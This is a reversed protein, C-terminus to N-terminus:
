QKPLNQQKAGYLFKFEDQAGKEKSIIKPDCILTHMFIMFKELLIKLEFKQSEIKGEEAISKRVDENNLYFNIKEKLEEISDFCDLHQGEKFLYIAQEFTRQTLLFSGNALVELTRMNHSTSNQERIFNLVIKSCDFAKRMENLYVAKGKLKTRLISNYSLKEQWLNGWIALNLYPIQECINTLWEERQEDWTGIFCVDSEYKEKDVDDITLEKSFLDTDFGFPFYYLNKSGATKLIPMLMKSWILFCDYLPLSKLINSNSNGNWFVFPNDPYFNVIHCGFLDKIKRITKYFINNSKVFFILDPNFQAVAKLLSSNLSYSDFFSKTKKCNFFCTKYGLKKFSKYFSHSYTYVKPDSHFFGVVLVKKILDKKNM